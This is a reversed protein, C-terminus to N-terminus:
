IYKLWWKSHSSKYADYKKCLPYLSIVVLLWIIYLGPLGFGLDSPRFLFPNNPTRIDNPGHGTVYFVVVVITHILFMHIIYYFMPVRGYINMVSTFRNRVREILSLLILAPGLTMCVFLLSPPYKNLNFFSLFTYVAGRPQTSWGIPDGYLNTYRFVLFVLVLLFGLRMLIKRRRREDYESSFVKGLCYGLLMIGTWPLFSYVVIFFRTSSISHISFQGFYVLDAIAGGKYKMEIQSHDLANHGCVIILGIILILWFPLYVMIGLVIMSMGIAWIVQLIFLYYHPDFTWGLTIIFVEAFVLWLGRTILFTSLETKTKKRSVLFASTGTLFVFVPACFHTIWRTFFLGPNTTALNTPDTAVASANGVNAKYLFDRVHDLAMIVMVIGRLVDISQIRSRSVVPSNM